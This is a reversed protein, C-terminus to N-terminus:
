IILLIRRMLDLSQQHNQQATVYVSVLCEWNVVRLPILRLQRQGLQRQQQNTRERSGRGESAEAYNQAMPDRDLDIRSASTRFPSRGPDQFTRWDLLM